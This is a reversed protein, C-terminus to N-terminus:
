LSKVSTKQEIKTAQAYTINPGKGKTKVANQVRQFYGFMDKLLKWLTVRDSPSSRQYLQLTALSVEDSEGTKLDSFYSADERLIKTIGGTEVLRKRAAKFPLSSNEDMLLLLGLKRSASSFADTTGKTQSLISMMNLHVVVERNFERYM